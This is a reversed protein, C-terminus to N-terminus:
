NSNQRTNMGEFLGSPKLGNKEQLRVTLLIIQIPEVLLSCLTEQNEEKGQLLNYKLKRFKNGSVFPHIL